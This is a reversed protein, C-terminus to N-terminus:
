IGLIGGRVHFAEVPNSGAHDAWYAAQRTVDQIKVITTFGPNLRPLIWIKWSVNVIVSAPQLM